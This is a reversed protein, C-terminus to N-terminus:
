KSVRKSKRTKRPSSKMKGSNSKSEKEEKVKGRKKSPEEKVVPEEKIVPEEKVADKSSNRKLATKKEEGKNTGSKPVKSGTGGKRGVVKANKPVMPGPEGEFWMTRGNGDQLNNM